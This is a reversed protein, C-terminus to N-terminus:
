NRGGKPSGFFCTTENKLFYCLVPSIVFTSFHCFKPLSKGLQDQGQDSVDEVLLVRAGPRVNKM